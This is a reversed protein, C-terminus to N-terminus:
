RKGEMTKGKQGSKVTEYRLLSEIFGKAKARVTLQQTRDDATTHLTMPVKLFLAGQPNGFCWFVTSLARDKAWWRTPGIPCLRRHHKDQSMEEWKRMCKYSERLFLAIDNLLSFLSAGEM